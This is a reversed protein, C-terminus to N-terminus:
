IDKFINCLFRSNIINDKGLLSLSLLLISLYFIIGDYLNEIESPKNLDFLDLSISNYNLLM